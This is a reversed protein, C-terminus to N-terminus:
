GNQFRIQSMQGTGYYLTIRGNYNSASTTFSLISGAPITLPPFGDVFPASTSIITFTLGYPAQSSSKPINYLTDSGIKYYKNQYYFGVETSLQDVKQSTSIYLNATVVNDIKLDTVLPNLATIVATPQGNSIFSNIKQSSSLHRLM